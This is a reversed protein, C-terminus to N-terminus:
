SSLSQLIRRVDAEVAIFARVQYGTTVTLSDIANLDLPNVAAVYLTTDEIRVPVVGYRMLQDVHVVHVVDPDPEFGTLDFFEFGWLRGEAKVRESEAIAGQRVLSQGLDEGNQRGLEAAEVVVDNRVSVEQRLAELFKADHPSLQEYLAEDAIEEAPAEVPESTAEPQPEAAPEPSEPEAPAEVPEPPAAEEEVEPPAEAAEAPGPAPAEAPPAPEVTIAPVTPTAAEAAPLGNLVRHIETESAVAAMVPCGLAESIEAVLESSMVDLPNPLAVTVQVRVPVARYRRLVEAPFLRIVEPEPPTSALDVYELGLKLALCRVREEDTVAGLMRLVAGLSEGTREAVEAARDIQEPTASSNDLFIRRMQEDVM